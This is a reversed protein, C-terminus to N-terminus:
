KMAARISDKLATGDPELNLALKFQESAKDTQGAAAYSMGLHYHAAAANPSKSVVNELVSIAAAYDGQKYKLWGFTDQLQPVEANKLKDGLAVARDLSAKDSRNDILLSVLNNIAITANPQEKLIAEYQAIAKENDGKAIELSALRMQLDINAPLEKLGIEITSVAQDVNKQSAYLEALAGYGGPDKPQQTIAQKFSQEAEPQKKQALQAQGLLVLVQSSAPNKTKLDELLAVAKDSKGQKLYASVLAVLPQLANPAAAQADELAKLSEEVKNQGALASARIEDSLVKGGEIGGAADAVAMAGSWNKEAIRLQALSSLLQLNKPIRTVADTLVEEARGLDKRRQLFAVYRLVVAPNSGASKMADAYQRDALEPKGSREYAAALLMLLDPSKPQDNLAARLDSIASDFNGKEINLAARLRLAGANRKDKALVDAIIPEAATTNSQSVYLEALKVQATLKREQTSANSALEQLSKTAEDFKKEVVDIEVRALQYDFVDGGAKIRSELEGRAAAPGKVLNLFRVLELGLKSDTPNAQVLGRLEKEAEDFHRETMLIQILQKRYAVNNPAKEILFRIQEEAKPLEGKRLYLQLKQLAIRMEDGEDPKLAALLKLAGDPDGENTKKLALVSVADPNSPDIEFARQAERYAAESDNTRLLALSKVAHLAANPKDGEHVADIIRLAGDAAGGGVMIRALKIRADTDNPDLEVIRKLDAFLGQSKSREDIGAIARWIEVNDNKYKLARMLQGRAAGDQNKEILSLASDYYEKAREEPSSCNTLALLPLLLLGKRCNFLVRNKIM